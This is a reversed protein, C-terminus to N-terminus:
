SEGGPKKLDASLLERCKEQLDKLMETLHGAKDDSLDGAVARIHREYEPEIGKLAREGKGTLTIVDHRMDEKSAQRKIYGGEELNRIHISLNGKTSIMRELIEKQSMGGDGEYKLIILINFRAQSLERDFVCANGVRTFLEATKIIELIAHEGAEITRGNSEIM